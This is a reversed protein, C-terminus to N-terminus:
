RSPTGGGEFVTDEFLNVYSPENFSPDDLPLCLYDRGEAARKSWAVGFNARGVFFRHSLANATPQSDEPVIRM